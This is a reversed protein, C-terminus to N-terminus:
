PLVECSNQDCGARWRKGDFYLVGKAKGSYEPMEEVATFTLELRKKKKNFRMKGMKEFYAGGEDNELSLLSFKLAGSQVVTLSAGLKCGTIHVFDQGAGPWELALAECKAPKPVKVKSSAPLAILSAVILALAIRVVANELFLISSTSLGRLTVCWRARTERVRAPAGGPPTLIPPQSLLLSTRSM